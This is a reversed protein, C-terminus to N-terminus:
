EKCDECRPEYGIVGGLRDLEVHCCDLFVQKLQERARQVRSKAGSLSLGLRAALEHQKLGQLETLVLAERYKDPLCDVMASLSRALAREAEDQPEDPQPLDEPLEATEPRRQGRRYHDIIARRTVQYVWSTLREPQRLTGLHTHLRLYTEQLIDDVAQPDDVRRAVFRRLDTHLNEYIPEVSLTM